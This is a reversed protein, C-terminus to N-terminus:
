SFGELPFLNEGRHLLSTVNLHKKGINSGKTVEEHAEGLVWPPPFKTRKLAGCMKIHFACQSTQETWCSSFLSSRNMPAAYCLKQKASHHSLASYVVAPMGPWDWCQQGEAQGPLTGSSPSCPKPLLPHLSSLPMNQAQEWLTHWPTPARGRATDQDPLPLSSGAM